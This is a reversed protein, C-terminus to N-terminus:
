LRPDFCHDVTLKLAPAEALPIMIWRARATSSIRLSTVAWTISMCGGVATERARQVLDKSSGVRLASQFIWSSSGVSMLVRGGSEQLRRGIPVWPSLSITHSKSREIVRLKHANRAYVNVRIGNSCSHALSLFYADQILTKPCKLAAIIESSTNWCSEKANGSPGTHGPNCCKVQIDEHPHPRTCCKM